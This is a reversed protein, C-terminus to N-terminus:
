VVIQLNEIVEGGSAKSTEGEGVFFNVGTAGPM